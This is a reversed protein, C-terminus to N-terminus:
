PSGGCKGEGCKGEMGKDAHGTAAQDSATAKAAPVGADSGAKAEDHKHNAGCSGEAQRAQADSQAQAHGTADTPPPTPHSTPPASAALAYGQVLDTMALAPPALLSSGALGLGLAALSATKRTSVTM